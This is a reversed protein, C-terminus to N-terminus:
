ARRLVHNRFRMGLRGDRVEEGQGSRVFGEARTWGMAEQDEPMDENMEFLVSKLRPDALMRRAGALVKSELGDVDIKLYAPCPFGWTYVLDDLSLALCGQEYVPAFPAGCPDKNVGFSHLASGPVTASLRLRDFCARDSIALCHAEVCGSLGNAQINRNLLAFNASEPEFAYVRVGRKGAYISYLGVNAGVDFLVEGESMSRIWEITEPEKSVLTEARWFTLPNPVTFRALTGRDDIEVSLGELRAAVFSSWRSGRLLGLAACVAAAAGRLLESRIRRAGRSLLTM